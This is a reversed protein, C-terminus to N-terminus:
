RIRRIGEVKVAREAEVGDAGTRTQVTVLVGCSDPCDHSCVAHVVKTRVEAEVQVREMGFTYSWGM